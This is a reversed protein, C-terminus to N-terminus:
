QTYNTTKGYYNGAQIKRLRRQIGLQFNLIFFPTTKIDLLDIGKLPMASEISEGPVQKEFM